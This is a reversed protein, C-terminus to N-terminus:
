KIEKYHLEGDFDILEAYPKGNMFCVGDSMYYEVEDVMEISKMLLDFTYDTHENSNEGQDESIYFGEHRIDTIEM